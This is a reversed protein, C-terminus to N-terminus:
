PYEWETKKSQEVMRLKNAGIQKGRTKLLDVARAKAGDWNSALLNSSELLGFGDAGMKGLQVTFMLM